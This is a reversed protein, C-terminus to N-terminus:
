VEPKTAKSVVEYALTKLGECLKTDIPSTVTTTQEWAATGEPLEFELARRVMPDPTGNSPDRAPTRGERLRILATPELDPTM